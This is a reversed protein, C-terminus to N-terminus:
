SCLVLLVLHSFYLMLSCFSGGGENEEEMVCALPMDGSNNCLLSDDIFSFRLMVERSQSM